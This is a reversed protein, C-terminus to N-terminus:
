ITNVEFSYVLDNGTLIETKEDLWLKYNIDTHNNKSLKERFVEYYYYKNDEYSFEDLRFLKNSVKFKLNELKITSSKSVKLILQYEKNKNSNNNIVLTNSFLNKEAYEDTMPYLNYNNNETINVTMNDVYKLIEKEKKVKDEILIPMIIVVYLVLFAIVVNKM